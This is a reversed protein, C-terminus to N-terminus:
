DIREGKVFSCAMADVITPGCVRGSLSKARGGGGGQALPRGCFLLGAFHLVRPAGSRAIPQEPPAQLWCVRTRQVLGVQRRFEFVDFGASERLGEKIM